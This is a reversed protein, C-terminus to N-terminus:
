VLDSLDRKRPASPQKRAAFLDDRWKRIERNSWLSVGHAKVPPPFKGNKIMRYLSVRSVPILDLVKEIRLMRVNDDGEIDNARKYDLLAREIAKDVAAIREQPDGRSPFEGGDTKNFLVGGQDKRGYREILVMEKALAESENYFLDDIRVYCSEDRIKSLFKESRGHLSSVRNGCGKGVYFPIGNQGYWVYTYFM